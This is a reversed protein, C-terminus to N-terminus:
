HNYPVYPMKQANLTKPLWVRYRQSKDWENGASSFDCLKIHSVGGHGELDTGLVAPATFCMWAFDPAPVATLEVYGDKSQITSTEDVFGDGFRSDRALVVPGRVIAQYNNQEVLRARLDLKLTIKDGAQWEREIPLYSGQMVGEMKKGNVEVEAIKSWQPIRVAVAFTAKRAPQVEIEIKDSIPYDTKQRMVVDLPKKGELTMTAESAAYLNVRITNEAVQYAFQPILAFGRPGNANCCNIHMGCQEEGPSRWGELPSYKAIQSADGKLSALLANYATIEICDAYLSNGTLQLLRNCLQMWTFTVCTEMTHYTPMTQREKGGYWCEFASGSGAINIEEQIIHSVTKEVATLLTRNGTIKYMELLGEYCSMMEYAKMGNERSFWKEPHPFRTSVPVDALAKTILEPGGEANLQEVIYTAFDFYRKEGTRNYLYVVPELISCSAMGLYNGTANIAVHDPGVQTMLHDVVRCAADLARKDGSLDYWAILGLSSYKRGWVDWQKLQHEEAYNGIYGNALQTAMLSEAGQRIIEYLEPDRNYRYSAIAGQIWKGWFESQWRSSENQHRFPEVLHEVDQAKVRHEICADIRSGIYGDLRVQKIPSNVAIQASASGAVFLAAVLMLSKLSFLNKM